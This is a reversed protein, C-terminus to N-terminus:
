CPSEGTVRLLDRCWGSLASLNMLHGSACSTTVLTSFSAMEIRLVLLLSSM